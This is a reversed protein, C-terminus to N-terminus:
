EEFLKFDAMRESSAKYKVCIGGVYSSIFKECVNWTAIHMKKEGRLLKIIEDFLSKNELDKAM